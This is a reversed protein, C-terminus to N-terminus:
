KSVSKMESMNFYKDEGAFWEENKGIYDTHLKIVLGKPKISISTVEGKVQRGGKYKFSIIDGVNYLIKNRKTSSM